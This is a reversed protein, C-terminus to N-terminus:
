CETAGGGLVSLEYDPWDAMLVYVRTGGYDVRRGEGRRSMAGILFLDKFSRRPSPECLTCAKGRSKM